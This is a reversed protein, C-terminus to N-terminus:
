HEHKVFLDDLEDGGLVEIVPVVPTPEPEHLVGDWKGIM